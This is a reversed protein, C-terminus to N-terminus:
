RPRSRGSICNAM